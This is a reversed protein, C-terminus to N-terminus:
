GYRGGLLTANGGVATINDTVTKEHIFRSLYHPGGAKPGTGSLGRGGFPQVGVVSGIIDRNIYVNGVDARGAIHRATEAVRSHIGLTLGYGTANVAALVRELDAARYRVVHLIPGFVEGPLAEPVPLEYIRPAFYCGREAGPPLEAAAVLRAESDMREAHAALKDRAAADIVPGVDIDLREPDGVRLEALAGAIAALMTDAVEEQVFLVRLASCRQGASNFSSRVVDAAVQEPLASSDVLMANVGGTEAILPVLPGDRGALARNISQATATGGTLAVGALEPHDLVAPGIERSPGPVFQVAGEPIGARALCEVVGMATLPTAGAPKAVVTNGVALAAAIQGTFIAAPFNWPSACFIVGRGEARLVNREGTPGPLVTEALQERATAAYYRCFDAAERVEALADPLTRGGERSIRAMLGARHDEILDAARELAAAREAVPTRDWAPFAAAAGAMAARAQDADAEAVTGAARDGGAPAAVERRAGDVREGDIRPGARWPAEAWAAGLAQDLGAVADPDDLALGTSSPRDGLIDRPYPLVPGEVRGARWTAVPDALLAEPSAERDAIRNIFSTNAGNELLRRVLYPLLERHGGVPAYVRCPLGWSETVEAYIAAGMGHLRQFEYDDRGAMIERAAAITHANHSALQPFVAGGLDALKRVCALYAIDTHTKRTLVPYDALGEQQARKIEADWYAGKVLRVPIRADHVGAQEGVWDLVAPARKQYAQVALGVGEWGALGPDAFVAALVDLSPELRHAEEADVTVPIGAARARHLLDRLRPTLEERVRRAQVFEYRPHLASLKVSIGPRALLPQGPDAAGGAADVARQYARMYARADTATVAAEGLMDFSYRYAQNDGSGARHLAEDMDRGFVFQRAMLHMARKLARRVVPESSRGVLTSLLGSPCEDWGPELGVVRGTLMLGWTSANVLLSDSHGLHRDWDAGALKDHILRDATDPDPVRLLGEALCMLLVGEQSSLDYEHLFSDLPNPQERTRAVLARGRELIRRQAADDFAAAEALEAVLAPEDALHAATVARRAPDREDLELGLATPM